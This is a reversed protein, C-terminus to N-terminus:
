RGAYRALIRRAADRAIDPAVEGGVLTADPGLRVLLRELWPLATIRLTVRCRGGALETVDDTPYQEVVWRAAPALELVVQPDEPRPHFVGLDPPDAPPAFTRDLVVADHIRDVRFLREGEARHCWGVVYWEGQDTYLRYPDVTRETREDRGYTYYDIQISRHEAVADRLLDLTASPAEGLHVDVAEDPDVGLVGALKALGRALPGDGEVGPVALLSAGGAVVALAEEPTLRLPRAFTPTYRIWVREDEIVIDVLEDPTFPHVGVMFVVELDALLDDRAMGFRACVEDITPGDHAAVWPVLALLRQLRDGATVKSV